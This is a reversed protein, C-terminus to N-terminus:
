APLADFRATGEIELVFDAGFAQAPSLAGRLDGALVREVSRIGAVATFQYAEVTELWAQAQDGHANAAHAWIYSRANQRHEASPGKIATEIVKGLVRRVRASALLAQFCLSIDHV